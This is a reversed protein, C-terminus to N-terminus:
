FQVAFDLGLSAKAFGSQLGRQRAPEADVDDAVGAALGVREAKRALVVEGGLRARHPEMRAREGRRTLELQRPEIALKGGGFLDLAFNEGRLEGRVDRAADAVAGQAGVEGARNDKRVLAKEIIGFRKAIVD